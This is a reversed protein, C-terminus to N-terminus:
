MQLDARDPAAGTARQQPHSPIRRVEDIPERPHSNTTLFIDWHPNVYDRARCAWYMEVRQMRILFGAIEGILLSLDPSVRFV